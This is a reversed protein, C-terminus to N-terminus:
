VASPASSHRHPTHGRHFSGRSSRHGGGSSSRRAPHSRNGSFAKRPPYNTGGNGTAIREREESRGRSYSSQRHRRMPSRGQGFSGRQPAFSKPERVGPAHTVAPLEPLPLVPITKGILREIGKVDNHEEPAAFSIAHGNRGARGTRGVRHVYDEYQDPLDFNIVLEINTVDIGRAAIDTAVLVRHQGTTFGHLARKRQALSRNSHIEDATHGMRRITNAIKKAGYKTRSFVLVTGTFDSLLKQLLALKQDKRVLYLEQQIKTPSVGPRAVEIREPNMMYKRALNAIETPMTASFLMTQREKPLSGLIQIIQPAFGIDFMRDAEDLVVVSIDHLSVTKQKMHDVLRGPTAIIVHPNRRIDQVQKHMSAGGILVATKLGFSAGVNRLSTEVQLALERTPLIVLGKGKLKAVRELMPLGFALTKGTGTQAIGVVDKGTLSVPISAAQIPTPTKFGKQTLVALLSPSLGLRDFGPAQSTPEQTM